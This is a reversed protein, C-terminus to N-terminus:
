YQTVDQINSWETLQINWSKLKLLLNLFYVIKSELKVIRAEGELREKEYEDFQIPWTKLNSKAKIQTENNKRFMIFLEEIKEQINTFCIVLTSRCDDSKLGELFVDNESFSTTSSDERLKKPIM